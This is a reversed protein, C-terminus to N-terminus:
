PGARQYVEIGPHWTPPRTELTSGDDTDSEADADDSEDEENKSSLDPALGGKEVLLYTTGNETHLKMRRAEGERNDILWNDSWFLFKSDGVSGDNKLTLYSPAIDGILSNRFPKIRANPNRERRKQQKFMHTAKLKEIEEKIEVVRAARKEKLQDINGLQDPMLDVQKLWNGALTPDPTYNGSFIFMDEEKGSIASKVTTKPSTRGAEAGGPLDALLQILRHRAYHAGGPMVYGTTPDIFQNPVADFATRFYPVAFAQVEKDAKNITNRFDRCFILIRSIMTRGFLDSMPPIIDKAHAPDVAIANLVELAARQFWWDEHDLLAILSNKHKIALEQGWRPMAYMARIKVWWSEDPATYMEEVLSKMESTLSEEPLGKNKKDGSIAVLGCERVRPDPSKLMILVLDARNISALRLAMANRLGYEPHHIYKLFGDDTKINRWESMAPASSNTEVVEALLDDLTISRHPAPEISQFADDAANGWPREPLQFHVAHPSKPAGFMQLQKRHITYTLAFYNGWAIQDEGTAKDYRDAMGAIGIGGDHRRSLDMVWRRTDIYSRYQTPRKEKMMCMTTNHWIEGLGGGTHAAHFWNTAYFSKMSSNDRAKAYVSKEGEPTLQAASGMAVALSGVKGNDRFGANPMDDGYSLTGHGAFRYFHRLSKQLMNEDVEVGCLKAMLLFNLCHVGAANLQGYDFAASGRGSWGAENYWSDKLEDAMKKIVPLISKDGTRLYYECLGPGKYGKHWPYRGVTEIDKMWNRVVELDKEEGTSLLFLVSGWEPTEQQAIRDALNRIIKDSKACNEPWTPSYAGMVPIQVLVEGEGEIKILMKGDTAEAETIWDALLIRPDQDKLVQGNVSEIIQGTKFKGTKDAPSGPEVRSIKMTFNPPTLNIGIGVPGFNPVRWTPGRSDPKPFFYTPVTYYPDQGPAALTIQPLLLGLALCSFLAPIRPIM